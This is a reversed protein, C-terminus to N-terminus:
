AGLVGIFALAPVLVKVCACGLGQMGLETFVSRGSRFGAKILEGRGRNNM